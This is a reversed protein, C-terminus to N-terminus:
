YAGLERKNEDAKKWWYHGAVFKRASQLDDFVAVVYWAGGGYSQWVNFKFDVGRQSIDYEFYVRGMM